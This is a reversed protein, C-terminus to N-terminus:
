FNMNLNTESNYETNLKTIEIESKEDEELGSYM